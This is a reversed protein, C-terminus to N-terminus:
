KDIKVFENKKLGLILILGIMAFINNFGSVSLGNILIMGICIFSFYKSVHSKRLMFFYALLIFFMGWLGHDFIVRLNFSHFINSYCEGYHSHSGMNQQYVYYSNLTCTKSSLIHLAGDAGLLWDLLNWNRIEYLFNIFLKYRDIQTIDIDRSLFIYVCVCFLTFFILAKLMINDKKRFFLMALIFLLELLTVRSYSLLTIAVVMCFDLKEIKYNEIWIKTAWLLLVFVLEFNNEYFVIPRFVGNPSPAFKFIISLVYKVIFVIAVIYFLKKITSRDFINSNVFFACVIIYFFSKYAITLDIPSDGSYLGWFFNFLIYGLSFIAFVAIQKDIVRLSSIAGLILLLEFLNKFPIYISGKIDVLALLLLSVLTYYFLKQYNVSYSM